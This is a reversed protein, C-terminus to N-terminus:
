CCSFLTVHHEVKNNTPMLCANMAGTLNINSKKIKQLKACKFKSEHGRAVLEPYIQLGKLKDNAHNFGFQHIM